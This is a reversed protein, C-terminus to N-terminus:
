KHNDLEITLPYQKLPKLGEDTLCKSPSSLYIITENDCIGEKKDVSIVVPTPPVHVSSASNTTLTSFVGVALSVILWTIGFGCLVLLLITYIKKM